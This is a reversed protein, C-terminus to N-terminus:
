RKKDKTKISKLLNFVLQVAVVMKQYFLLSQVYTNLPFRITMYDFLIDKIERLNNVSIRIIQNDEFDNKLINELKSIYNDCANYLSMYERYLNYKRTSDLEVGPAIQKGTDANDPTNNNSEPSSQSEDTGSTFDTNEGDGFDPSDEGTEANADQDEEQGADTNGAFDTNDDEGTDPGDDPENPTDAEAQEGDNQEQVQPETPQNEQATDPENPTADENTAGYDTDDIDVENNVDTDDPTIPLNGVQTFDKGRTSPKVSVVKVNRKPKPQDEAVVEDDPAEIALFYKGYLNKNPYTKLIM